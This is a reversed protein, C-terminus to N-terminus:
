MRYAFLKAQFMKIRIAVMEGASSIDSSGRWTVVQDEEDGTLRDCTAFTFGELPDVDPCNKSPVLQLLEVSIWGGPACRYNLHLEDERRFVTPVTFRGESEAEVGCLRHPRWCAWHNQIPKAKPFIAPGSTHLMSFGQYHVAWCGDPLEVLGHRWAYLGCDEGSGRPGVKAVARREPRTWVQGDRSFAIQLDTHSTVQHFVTLIMVHLDRRGPYVSYSPGYFSIDLPDQADPHILLKPAPWHRFDKTRALGIARRVVETEPVGAGLGPESPAVGQPQMFAFYTKNDEDYGPSLSGNVSYNALPEAIKTWCLRDPSTYGELVGKLVVKRGAYARGEYQEARWCPDAAAADVEEGTERDVWVGRGGMAKYREAPPASPDEFISAPVHINLINNETSGNFETLGLAPRDWHYGDESVAYCSTDSGEGEYLMHLRGDENWVYSPSLHGEAEWETEPALFPASKQAEEVRLKVGIPGDFLVYRGDRTAARHGPFIETVDVMAMWTGPNFRPRMWDGPFYSGRELIEQRQDAM